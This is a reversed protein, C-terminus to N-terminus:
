SDVLFGDTISIKPVKVKLLNTPSHTYSAEESLFKEDTLEATEAYNKILSFCGFHYM